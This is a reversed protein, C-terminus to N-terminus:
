VCERERVCVCECVCLSLSLSLSTILMVVEPRRQRSVNAAKRITSEAQASVIESQRAPNPEPESLLPLNESHWNSNESHWNSDMGQHWLSSFFSNLTGPKPKRTLGSLLLM